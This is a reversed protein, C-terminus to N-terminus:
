YGLIASAHRPRAGATCGCPGSACPGTRRPWSGRARAREGAGRPSRRGRRQPHRRDLRRQRSKLGVGVSVRAPVLVYPLIELPDAVADATRTSDRRRRRRERGAEPVCGGRWYWSLASRTAKGCPRPRRERLPEGRGERAEAEARPRHRADHGEHQRAGKALWDNAAAWGAGSRTVPLAVLNRPRALFARASRGGVCTPAASGHIM